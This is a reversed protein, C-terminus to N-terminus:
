ASARIRKRKRKVRVFRQYGAGVTDVDARIDQRVATEYDAYAVSAMPRAECDTRDFHGRDTGIPQGHRYYVNM